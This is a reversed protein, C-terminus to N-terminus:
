KAAWEPSVRTSLIQNNHILRARWASVKSEGSFGTLPITFTTRKQGRVQNPYSLKVVKSVRSRGQRYEFIVVAGPSLGAGADWNVYFIEHSPSTVLHDFKTIRKKVMRRTKDGTEGPVFEYQINIIDPAAQASGVVCMGLVTIFLVIGSLSKRASVM